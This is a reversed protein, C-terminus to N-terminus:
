LLTWEWQNLIQFRMKFVIGFAHMDLIVCGGCAVTEGNGVTAALEVRNKKIPANLFSVLEMSVFNEFAGSDAMVYNYYGNIRCPVVFVSHRELPDNEEVSKWHDNNNGSLAM